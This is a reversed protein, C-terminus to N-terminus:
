ESRSGRASCNLVADTAGKRNRFDTRTYSWASVDGSEFGDAFLEAPLDFEFSDSGQSSTAFKGRDIRRQSFSGTVHDLLLLFTEFKGKAREVPQGNRDVQVQCFMPIFREEIEFPDTVMPVAVLSELTPFQNVPCPPRASAFSLGVNLQEQADGAWASGALIMWGAFALVAGATKTRPFM